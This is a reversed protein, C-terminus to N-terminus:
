LNLLVLAVAGVLLGGIQMPRLKERFFVLSIIVTLMLGGVAVGPYLILPSLDNKVMILVFVNCIASCAGAIAPFVWTHKLASKWNSKNERLSLLLCFMASFLVGFFMLMNKHEYNFAMQQYRQTISCGANGVTIMVAFFIWKPLNHGEKKEEGTLLCLALSLIILLIGIGGTVTLPTDWFVFGWFSVGVLAIQKILATLSTSGYKLAELMGVTFLTYFVGYLLAYPLVRIDFSFDFIWFVLWSLTAAVPTLLSYLMSTGSLGENKTNYLRGGVTVMASSLMALFLYILNM